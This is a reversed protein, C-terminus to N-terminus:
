KSIRLSTRMLSVGGEHVKRVVDPHEMHAVGSWVKSDMGVGQLQIETSVGGDMIVIDDRALREDLTTM